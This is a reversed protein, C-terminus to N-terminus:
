TDHGAPTWRLALYVYFRPKSSPRGAGGPKRNIVKDSAYSKGHKVLKSETDRCDKDDSTEYIAIVENIGEEQKFKDYRRKMASVDNDGSAIGIYVKEVREIDCYKEVCDNLSEESQLDDWYYVYPGKFGVFVYLYEAGSPGGSAGKYINNVKPHSKFLELLDTKVERCNDESKSQYLAIIMNIEKDFDPSHYRRKMAAIASEGSARGIYVREAVSDRRLYHAVRRKLCSFVDKPSGTKVCNDFYWVDKAGYAMIVLLQKPKQASASVFHCTVPFLVNGNGYKTIYRMLGTNAFADFFNLGTIVFYWERLICPMMQPWILASTTEHGASSKQPFKKPM